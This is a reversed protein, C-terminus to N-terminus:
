ATVGILIRQAAMLRQKLDENEERLQQIEDQLRRREWPSLAEADKGISELQTVEKASYRLSPFDPLRHLKGEGEMRRITNPHLNWRKSLEQVSFIAREM